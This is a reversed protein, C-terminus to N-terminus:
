SKTNEKLQAVGNSVPLFVSEAKAKELAQMVLQEHDAKTLKKGVIDELLRTTITAFSEKMEELRQKRYQEVEKEAGAFLEAIRDGLVKQASVTQERLINQFEAMETEPIKGLVTLVEEAKTMYEQKTQALLEKYEQEFTTTEETLKKQADELVAKMQTKMEDQLNEKVYEVEKLAERAEELMKAHEVQISEVLIKYEKNFNLAENRLLKVTAESVDNLDRELNKVIDEKLYETNVLIDRARDVASEVIDRARKQADEISKTADLHLARRDRDFQKDRMYISYMVMLLFAMLGLNAILSITLYTNM